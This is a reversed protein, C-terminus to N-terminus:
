FFSFACVKGFFCWFYSNKGIKGGGGAATIEGM